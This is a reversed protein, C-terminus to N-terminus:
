LPRNPRCDPPRFCPGFAFRTGRRSAPSLLGPALEDLMVGIAMTDSDPVACDRALIELFRSFQRDDFTLWRQFMSRRFADTAGYQEMADVVQDTVAAAGGYFRSAYWAAADRVILDAHCIFPLIQELTLFESGGVAPLPAPPEILAFQQWLRERLEGPVVDLPGNVGAPLSLGYGHEEIAAALSPWRAAIEHQRRNKPDFGDFLMRPVIQRVIEYWPLTPRPDRIEDPDCQEIVEGLLPIPSLGQEERVTVEWWAFFESELDQVLRYVCRELNAPNKLDCGIWDQTRVGASFEWKM